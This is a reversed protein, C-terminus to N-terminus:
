LWFITPINSYDSIRFQMTAFYVIEFIQFRTRTEDFTSVGDHLYRVKPFFLLAVFLCLNMLFEVYIEDVDTCFNSLDLPCHSLFRFFFPLIQSGRRQWKKFEIFKTWLDVICFILFISFLGKFIVKKKPSFHYKQNKESIIESQNLLLLSLHTLLLCHFNFFDFPNRFFIIISLGFGLGCFAHVCLSSGNIKSMGM